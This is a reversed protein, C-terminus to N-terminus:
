CRGGGGGGSQTGFIENDKGVQVRTHRVMSAPPRLLKGSGTPSGESCGTAQARGLVGFLNLLVCSAYSPHFTFVVRDWPLNTLGTERLETQVALM